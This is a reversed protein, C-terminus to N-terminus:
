CKKQKNKENFFLYISILQFKCWTIDWDNNKCLVSHAYAKPLGYKHDRNTRYYIKQYNTHYTACYNTHDNSQNTYNNIRNHNPKHSTANSQIASHYLDVKFRIVNADNPLFNSILHDYMRRWCQSSWSALFLFSNKCSDLTMVDMFFSTQSKFKLPLIKYFYSTKIFYKILFSIVIKKKHYLTFFTLINVIFVLTTNNKRTM